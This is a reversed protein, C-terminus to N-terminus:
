ERFEFVKLETATGNVGVGLAEVRLKDSDLEGLQFVGTIVGRNVPGEVGRFSYHPVGEYNQIQIVETALTDGNAKDLVTVTINDFAVARELALKIYIADVEDGLPSLRINEKYYARLSVIKLSSEEQSLLKDTNISCLVLLVLFYKNIGKM